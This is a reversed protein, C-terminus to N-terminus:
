GPGSLIILSAGVLTHGSTSQSSAPTAAPTPASRASSPGSTTTSVCTNRWAAATRRRTRVTRASTRSRGRTRAATCTSSTGGASASTASSASLRSRGQVCMVRLLWCHQECLEVDSRFKCKPWLSLSIGTHTKLHREMDKQGYQTKFTCGTSSIPPNLAHERLICWELLEVWTVWHGVLLSIMVLQVSYSKYCNENSLGGRQGCYLALQNSCGQFYLPSQCCLFTNSSYLHSLCWGSFCCSRRKSTLAPKLKKSPTKQAKTLIKKVGRM